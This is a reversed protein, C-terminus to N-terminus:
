LKGALRWNEDDGSRTYIRYVRSDERGEDKTRGTSRDAECTGIHQEKRCLM